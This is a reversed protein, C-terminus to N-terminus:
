RSKVKEWKGRKTINWGNKYENWRVTKYEHGNPKGAWTTTRRIFDGEYIKKGYIDLVGTFKKM